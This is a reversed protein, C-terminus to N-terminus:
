SPVRILTKKSLQFSLSFTPFYAFSIHYNLLSICPLSLWISFVPNPSYSFFLISFLATGARVCLATCTAVILWGESSWSGRSLVPSDFVSPSQCGPVDQGSCPSLSERGAGHLPSLLCFTAHRIFGREQYGPGSGLANHLHCSAWTTPALCWM